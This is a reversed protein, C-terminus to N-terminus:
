EISFPQNLSSNFTNDRIQAVFKYFASKKSKAARNLYEELEVRRKEVFERSRNGFWKKAPLGIGGLKEDLAELLSYRTRFPYQNSVNRKLVQYQEKLIATYEV